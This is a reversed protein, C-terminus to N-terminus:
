LLAGLESPLREIPTEGMESKAAIPFAAGANLVASVLADDARARCDARSRRAWDSLNSVAEGRSQSGLMASLSMDQLESLRPPWLEDDAALRTEALLRGFRRAGVADRLTLARRAAADSVARRVIAPADGYLPAADIRWGDWLADSVADFVADYDARPDDWGACLRAAWAAIMDDLRSLTLRADMMMEREARRARSETEIAAAFEAAAIAAARRGRESEERADRLARVVEAGSAFSARPPTADVVRKRHPSFVIAPDNAHLIMKSAGFAGQRAARGRIQREARASAPLSAILVVLGLGFDVRRITGDCDGRKRVAIEVEGDRTQRRVEAGDLGRLAVQLASAEESSACVFATEGREGLALNACAAIIRADADRAPVIDTGRGAMGASVTVAGFRGAAEVVEPEEGANAADLLRHPIRRKSLAGSMEASERPTAVTLLVPRGIRHWKEVEDALARDRDARRIFVVPPADVRRSPAAPAVRVTRAGYDSRFVDEGEVATGSLGCVARYNSMLARVTTMARPPARGGSEVGEKAELAEHLGDTYRHSYLPRGDLADVLTVGDERAVYDEDAKHVAHARIIQVVEFAAAPHHRVRRLAEEWGRETLRPALAAPHLAFLLERDLPRGYDEDNMRIADALTDRASAGLREMEAALRDSVGGGLLITALARRANARGDDAIQSSIQSYLADLARAQEDMMWAAAAQADEGVGAESEGLPEGSIILPVRAQDILLHDAEDAIAFDFVPNVREAFSRAAGDRLYDFGIERASAYVVQRAYQHRREDADMNGIILGVRIGLSELLPAHYECDRAALYDNATLIHVRRGSAALVAAALAAALSKGEGADMEVVRARVLHAAADMQGSTPAFALCGADDADALSRYFEAPMFIESPLRAVLARRARVLWDLAAFRASDSPPAAADSSPDLVRDAEDRLARIRGSLDEPRALAAKWVGLRRGAALAAIGLADALSRDDVLDAAASRLRATLDQDQM